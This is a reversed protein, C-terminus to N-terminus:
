IMSYILTDCHTLPIVVVRSNNALHKGLNIVVGVAWLKVKQTYQDYVSCKLSTRLKKKSCLSSYWTAPTKRALVLEKESFSSSLSKYQKDLERLDISFFFSFFFSVVYCVMNNALYQWKFNEHLCWCLETWNSVVTVSVHSTWLLCCGLWREGKLWVKSHAQQSFM